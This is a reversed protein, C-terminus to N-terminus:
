RLTSNALQFPFALAAGNAPVDGKGATPNLLQAASNDKVVISAVAGSTPSSLVVYSSGAVTQISAM